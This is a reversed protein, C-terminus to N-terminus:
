SVSRGECDGSTEFNTQHSMIVKSSMKLIPSSTKMLKKYGFLFYICSGDPLDSKPWIKLAEQRFLVRCSRFDYLLKSVSCGLPSTCFQAAPESTAHLRHHLVGVTM